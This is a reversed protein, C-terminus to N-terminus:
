IIPWHKIIEDINGFQQSSLKFSAVKENMEGHCCLTSSHNNM